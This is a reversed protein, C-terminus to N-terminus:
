YKAKTHTKLIPFQFTGEKMSYGKKSYKLMYMIKMAKYTSIFLKLGLITYSTTKTATYGMTIVMFLAHQLELAHVVGVKVSRPISGHAKSCIKLYLKIFLMKPFPTLLGLIWQFDQPIIKFPITLFQYMVLIFAALYLEVAFYALRKKLTADTLATWYIRPFLFLYRLTTM